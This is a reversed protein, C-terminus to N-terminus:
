LPPNPLETSHDIKEKKTIKQIQNTQLNPQVCSPIFQIFNLITVFIRTFFSKQTNNEKQENLQLKISHKSPQQMKTSVTDKSERTKKKNQEYKM